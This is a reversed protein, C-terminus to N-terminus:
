QTQRVRPSPDYTRFRPNFQVNSLNEGGMRCKSSNNLDKLVWGPESIRGFLRDDSALGRLERQEVCNLVFLEVVTVLNVYLVSFRCAEVQVDPFVHAETPGFVVTVIERLGFILGLLDIRMMLSLDTLLPMGWCKKVESENFVSKDEEALSKNQQLLYQLLLTRWEKLKRYSATELQADFERTPGQLQETYRLLVFLYGLRGYTM